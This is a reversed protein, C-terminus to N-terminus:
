DVEEIPPEAGTPTARPGPKVGWEGAERPVPRWGSGPLPIGAPLSLPHVGDADRQGTYGHMAMDRGPFRPEGRECMLVGGSYACVGSYRPGVQFRLVQRLAGTRTCWVRACPDAIANVPSSPM